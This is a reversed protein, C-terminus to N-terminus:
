REILYNQIEAQSAKLKDDSNGNIEHSILALIGRVLVKNGDEMAKLRENDKKLKNDVDRCWAELEKRPKNIERYAKVGNWCLIFFGLLAVLVLIFDKVQAANISEVSM